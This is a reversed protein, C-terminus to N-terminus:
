ETTIKVRAQILQTRAGLQTKMQVRYLKNGSGLGLATSILLKPEGGEISLESPWVMNKDSVNYLRVYTTQNGTPTYLSAEFVASKIRGYKTNDIYTEVGPVDTWDKATSEGSGLSILFERAPGAVQSGIASTNQAPVINISATAIKVIEEVEQRTIGIADASATAVSQSGREVFVVQKEPLNKEQVFFKYDLLILNGLALLLIIGALALLVRRLKTM